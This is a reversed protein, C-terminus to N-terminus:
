PSIQMPKQDRDAEFEPILMLFHTTERIVTQKRSGSDARRDTRGTESDRHLM